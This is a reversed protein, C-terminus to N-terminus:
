EFTLQVKVSRGRDGAAEFAAVAEALPYSGTIIPTVDIAKTDILHVAQAYEAHFRHTGRLTIEKGVLMNIAVPLEGAVGVQVITGQPRVTALAGRLASPAASCEFAVDFHGKDAAYAEMEEANTAVNITRTAGMRTAVALTADQLDTVVVESAGGHKAVAACLSGIPGAGTVLVRKGHLDGAQNGAHVCVALPEACAAQALTTNPGVPECQVADAVIRDRFAGQQHPFRLASGYFRMELCHQFQGERCYRCHGCPRSPNLAVRDGPKVRTVGAGVAEIIGAVEHGLIIPERVRIPGFGGEHYYHLDSGCIGGAGIAVLVEGPGPAAVTDTEIRIDHMDHLRCVRTQM